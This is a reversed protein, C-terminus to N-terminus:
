LVQDGNSDLIVAPIGNAANMMSWYDRAEAFTPFEAICFFGEDGFHIGMQAFVRFM